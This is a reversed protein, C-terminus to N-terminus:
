LEEEMFSRDCKKKEFNTYRVEKKVNSGGGGLCEGGNITDVMAVKKNQIEWGHVGYIGGSM